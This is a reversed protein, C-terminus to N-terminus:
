FGRWSHAALVAGCLAPAFALNGKFSRHNIGHIVILLSSLIVLWLLYHVILDAPILLNLIVLTLKVDGAGCQSIWGFLSVGVITILFPILKFPHSFEIVSSIILLVLFINPIRRTLLDSVVIAILISATVV